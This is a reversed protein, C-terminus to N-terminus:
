KGGGFLRGMFGEKRVPTGSAPTPPNVAPRPGSGSSDGPAAGRRNSADQLKSKLNDIKNQLAGTREMRELEHQIESQLRQLDNRQRAMEARERAMSVEMQRMQEMLSEEDEQLQRRERELEESLALLEEERPAPGQPHRPAEAGAAQGARNEADVLAAEMEQVQQHLRRIMESKEELLQEYEKIQGDLEHGHHHQTAEQLAQELEACLARLQANEARLGEVEANGGASGPSPPGDEIPELDFAARIEEETPSVPVATPRGPFHGHLGGRFPDSPALPRAM